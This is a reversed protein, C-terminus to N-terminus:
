NRNKNKLGRSNLNYSATRQVLESHDKKLEMLIVEPTNRNIGVLARVKESSDFALKLLTEASTDSDLAMTEKERDTLVVKERQYLTSEKTM